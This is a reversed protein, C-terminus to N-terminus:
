NHTWATLIEEGRQNYDIILKDYLWQDITWDSGLEEKPSINSAIYYMSINYDPNAVSIKEINSKVLEERKKGDGHFTQYIRNKRDIILFELKM